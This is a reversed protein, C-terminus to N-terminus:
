LELFFQGFIHTLSTFFYNEVRNEVKPSNCMKPQAQKFRRGGGGKKKVFFIGDDWIKVVASLFNNTSSDADTM